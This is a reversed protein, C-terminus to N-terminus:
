VVYRHQRTPILYFDAPSKKFLRLREESQAPVNHIARIQVMFDAFYTRPPNLM